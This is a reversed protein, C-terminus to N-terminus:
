RVVIRFENSFGELRPAGPADPDPGLVLWWHLRYTGNVSDIAIQPDSGVNRVGQIRLARWSRYSAGPEIRFPPITLCLPYALPFVSIWSGNINKQLDPPPPLQCYHRSVTVSTPNTFTYRVNAAYM